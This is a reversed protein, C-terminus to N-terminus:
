FEFDPEYVLKLKEVEVARKERLEAMLSRLASEIERVIQDAKMGELELPPGYIVRIPHPRFIKSGKRWSRFSGDIVVPVVAADAKRIVLAVGKEIPGIEGDNTRSGEPYVNVVNGANLQRIMEKVAGVDGEGLRVPFAHLLRIFRGFYPNEFLNSRALFSVPRSLHVSVLVPDLYSQHNALLLVGGKPPVNERGYTKFDFLMTTGIRAIVQACKWFLSREM